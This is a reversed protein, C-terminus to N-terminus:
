HDKIPVTLRVIAGHEAAPAISFTGGTDELRRRMNRLGNRGTAEAGQPVGRGDDEIELVFRDPHLNLRLRATSAKAHKVVNNIAEKAAL